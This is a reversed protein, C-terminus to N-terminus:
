ASASNENVLVILDGQEFDGESTAIADQNYKKEQGDTYVIKQGAPLFDDAIAIAQDM